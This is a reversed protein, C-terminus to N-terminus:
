GSLVCVADRLIHPRTWRVIEASVGWLKQMDRRAYFSLRHHCYCWHLSRRRCSRIARAKLVTVSASGASTYWRVTRGRGTPAKCLPQPKGYPVGGPERKPVAWAMHNEIYTHNEVANTHKGPIYTSWLRYMPEGPLCKVTKMHNGLSLM